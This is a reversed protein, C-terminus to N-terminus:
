KKLQQKFLWPFLDPEKFANNWSEHQVEPYITLRVSAGEVLLADHIKKSEGQPVVPDDEGHFIWWPTECIQDAIETNAGGCIAFAAAFTDPHRRVLEFTGMAGMSLGGVYIRSRDVNYESLLHDLLRSLLQQQANNEANPSYTIKRGDATMESQIDHWYGKSACQPFVVVAPYRQRIDNNLFTGAGHTLQAENDNGREGSGHLFVVLPYHSTQSYNLPLLIRYPLTDLKEVLQEKKFASLDQAILGQVSILLIYLFLPYFKYTRM